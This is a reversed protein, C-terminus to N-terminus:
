PKGLLNLDDQSSPFKQGALNRPIPVGASSHTHNNIGIIRPIPHAVCLNAVNHSPNTMLKVGVETEYGLRLNHIYKHTYRDGGEEGTGFDRRNSDQGIYSCYSYDM